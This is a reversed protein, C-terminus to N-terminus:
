GSTSWLDIGLRCTRRFNVTALVWTSFYRCLGWYREKFEEEVQLVKSGGACICWVLVNISDSSFVWTCWFQIWHVLCRWWGLTIMSTLKCGCFAYLVVFSSQVEVSVSRYMWCTYEIADFLEDLILTTMAEMYVMFYLRIKGSGVYDLRCGVKCSECLSPFGFPPSFM